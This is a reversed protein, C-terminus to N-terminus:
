SAEIYCGSIDLILKTPELYTLTGAFLILLQLADLLCRCFESGLCVKIFADIHDRRKGKFKCENM